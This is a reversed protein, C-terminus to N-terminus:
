RHSDFVIMDPNWVRANSNVFLPAYSAMRVVESNAELGTMFAAEAVAAQKLAWRKDRCWVLEVMM